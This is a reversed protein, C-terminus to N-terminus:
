RHKATALRLSVILCIAAAACAVVGITASDADSSGILLIGVLLYLFGVAGIVGALVRRGM